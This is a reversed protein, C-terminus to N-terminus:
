FLSPLGEGNWRTLLGVCYLLLVLLNSGALATMLVASLSNFSCLGVPLYFTILHSIFLFSAFLIQVSSGKRALYVISAIPNGIDGIVSFTGIVGEVFPNGSSAFLFQFFTFFSVATLGVRLTDRWSIASYQTLLILNLLAFDEVIGQVFIAEATTISFATQVGTIYVIGLSFQWLLITFPLVINKWWPLVNVGPNEWLSIKKDNKYIKWGFILITL